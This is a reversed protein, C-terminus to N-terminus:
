LASVTGQSFDLVTEKAEELNFFMIKKQVTQIQLLILKDFQELTLM